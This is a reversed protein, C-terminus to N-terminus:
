PMGAINQVQNESSLEKTAVASFTPISVLNAQDVSAATLAAAELASAQSIYKPFLIYSNPFMHHIRVLFLVQMVLDFDAFCSDDDDDETRRQVARRQSRQARSQKELQLYIWSVLVVMLNFIALMMFVKCESM